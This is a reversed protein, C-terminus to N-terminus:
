VVKWKIQFHCVVGLANGCCKAPNSSFQTLHKCVIHFTSNTEEPFSMNFSGKLSNWWAGGVRGQWEPCCSYEFINFFYSLEFNQRNQDCWTEMNSMYFAIGLSMICELCIMIIILSFNGTNSMTNLMMSQTANRTTNQRASRLNCETTRAHM